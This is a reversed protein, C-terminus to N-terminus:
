DCVLVVLYDLGFPTRAYHPAEWKVNPTLVKVHCVGLKPM